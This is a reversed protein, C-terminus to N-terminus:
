ATKRSRLSNANDGPFSKDRSRGRASCTKKGLSKAPYHEGAKQKELDNIKELPKGKLATSLVLVIVANRNMKLRRALSKYFSNQTATLEIKTAV